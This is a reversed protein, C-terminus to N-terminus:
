ITDHTRIIFYEEKPYNKARTLINEMDKAQSKHERMAAVKTDWVDAVDVIKDIESKEYGPPFYIFYDKREAAREKPMAHYWIEKIFSLKRFVFTTVMSITIHDIHGSVGNKDMTILIEPKLKKLRDEIKAAIEHYLNNSLTGDAFGLFYVKKVGIIKAACRLEDRRIEAITRKSKRTRHNEGQEGSTATIIYVDNKAALKALTGSPGFTEDDPHAFVGVITKGSINM